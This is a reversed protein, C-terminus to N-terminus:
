CEVSGLSFRSFVYLAFNNIKVSVHSNPPEIMAWAVAEAGAEGDTGMIAKTVLDAAPLLLVLGM